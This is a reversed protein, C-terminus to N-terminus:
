EFSEEKGLEYELDGFGLTKGKVYGGRDSIKYQTQTGEFKSILSPIADPGCTLSKVGSWSDYWSIM